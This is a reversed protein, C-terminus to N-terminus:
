AYVSEFWTIDYLKNLLKLYEKISNQYQESPTTYIKNGKEADIAYHNTHEDRTHYITPELGPRTLGFVICNTNTAEGSLVYCSLSLVFVLQSPILIIHGLPAVHRDM